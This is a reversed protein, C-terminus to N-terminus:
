RRSSARSARGDPLAAARRPRKLGEGGRDGRRDPADEACTAARCSSSRISGPSRSEAAEPAQPHRGPRRVDEDRAPQVPRLPRPLRLRPRDRGRLRDEPGAKVRQGVKVTVERFHAYISRYGNGDDIVVVMPLDNWLAQQRSNRLVAEPQRALRHARRLPARRGPRRRRPRRRGPRRLVLGHRRRRPDAPRRGAVRGVADPRVPPDSAANPIPWSYGTLGAIPPAGGPEAIGADPVDPRRRHPSPTSRPNHPSRAEGPARHRPWRAASLMRRARSREPPPHPRPATAPWSRRSASSPSSVPHLPGLSAGAARAADTVSCPRM